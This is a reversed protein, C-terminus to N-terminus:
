GRGAQLHSLQESLEKVEKSLTDIMQDRQSTPGGGSATSAVANASQPREVAPEETLTAAEPHPRERLLCKQATEQQSATQLADDLTAPTDKMM